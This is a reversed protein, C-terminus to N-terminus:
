AIDATVVFVGNVGVVGDAYCSIRALVTTQAQGGLYVAHGNYPKFVFREHLILSNRFQNERVTKLDYTIIRDHVAVVKFLHGEAPVNSM